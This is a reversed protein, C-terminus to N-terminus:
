DCDRCLRLLSDFEDGHHPFLAIGWCPCRYGAVHDMYRFPERMGNILQEADHHISEASDIEAVIAYSVGEINACHFSGRGRDGREIPLSGPMEVALRQLRKVINQL